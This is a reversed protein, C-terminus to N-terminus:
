RQLGKLRLGLTILSIGFVLAYVGIWWAVVVVGIIPAMILMIGLLLSVLGGLGLLWRGADSRLRFAASLMLIGSLISWIAILMIFVVVSIGPWAVVVVATLINVIAELLLMGFREHHEAARVVSIIGFVGDVFAYAAFVLVLSLMTVGPMFVAILGFLVGIVGRLVVAWWNRALASVLRDSGGSSDTIAIKVM